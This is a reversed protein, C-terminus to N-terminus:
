TTPEIGVRGMSPANDFHTYSGASSAARRTDAGHHLSPSRLSHIPGGVPGDRAWGRQIDSVPDIERTAVTLSTPRHHLLREHRHLPAPIKTHNASTNRRVRHNSNLGASFNQRTRSGSASVPHPAPALRSNDSNEASTKLHNASRIRRPHNPSSIGASNDIFAQRHARSKTYNFATAPRSASTKQRLKKIISNPFRSTRPSSKSGLDTRPKPSLKVSCKRHNPYRQRCASRPYCYRCKL